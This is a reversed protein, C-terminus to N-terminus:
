NGESQEKTIDGDGFTDLITHFVELENIEPHRASCTFAGATFNITYLTKDQVVLVTEGYRNVGGARYTVKQGEVGNISLPKNTELTLARTKFNEVVYSYLQTKTTTTPREGAPLQGTKASITAHKPHYLFM